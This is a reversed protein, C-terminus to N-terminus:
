DASMFWWNLSNLGHMVVETMSDLIQLLLLGSATVICFETTTGPLARTSEYSVSRKCDHVFLLIKNFIIGELYVRYTVLCWCPDGRDTVWPPFGKGETVRGRGTQRWEHMSIYLQVACLVPNSIIKRYHVANEPCYEFAGTVTETRFRAEGHKHFWRLFSM